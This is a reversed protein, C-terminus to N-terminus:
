ETVKRALKLLKSSMQLKNQRAVGLDVAFGVRGDAEILQVAAGDADTEDTIVLVANGREPRRGPLGTGKGGQERFVAHCRRATDATGLTLVELRRLGVPRGALAHLPTALAGQPEVCLTLPTTPAILDPPWEVFLLINYVIAAKLQTAEVALSAGSHSTAALLWCLVTCRRLARPRLM